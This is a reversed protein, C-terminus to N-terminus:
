VPDVDPIITVSRFKRDNAMIASQQQILLKCHRIVSGDRPLKLLLEYLYQNRVRSVVPEAPGVLYSGFETKLANAMFNAASEADDKIKHRFVLQILRSYPPYFFNKRGILEYQYLSEFDHQQVWGLVPHEPNSTQIFM